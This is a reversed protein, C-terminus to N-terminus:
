CIRYVRDGFCTGAPRKNYGVALLRTYAVPVGRWSRRVARPGRKDSEVTREAGLLWLPRKFSTFRTM